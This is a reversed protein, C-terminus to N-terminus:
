GIIRSIIAGLATDLLWLVLAVIFVVVLVILTTQTTEQRTPWVVKRIETRAEICLNLFASGKVTQAAIWGALVALVLLGVVRLVLSEAAFYANAYVGGAVIVAVAIWKLLDQKPAQTTSKDSM